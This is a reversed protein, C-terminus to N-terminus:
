LRVGAREAGARLVAYVLEGHPMGCFEALMPYDSYHPALGPLPNIEIFYLKGAKDARFDIRAFDHCGLALFITKSLRILEQEMAAPIEAPCHYSVFKEYEQKVTYNYVNYGAIPSHHYVIEMPPFVRLTEGNGLIGVTFERGSLFEEALVDGGYLSFNKQVLEKLTKADNAICVDAIGKSSGEANPKVIVPFRLGGIRVPAGPSFLRFRPTPIRYTSLVRKTLAKDLSLCLTTADSGTFPIEFLNLLAPAQAERARGGYGEAINFVLDPKESLLRQPLTQDAELLVTQHGHSRIASAIALVTEMSDYEAQADPTTESTKEAHKLNFTVGVKVQGLPVEESQNEM